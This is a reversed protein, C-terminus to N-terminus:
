LRIWNQSDVFTFTNIGAAEIARRIGDQVLVTTSKEAIRFLSFDMAKNPDVTFGRISSAMKFTGDYSTINSKSRDVVSVLGLINVAFVDYQEGTDYVIRAPYLDLNDIASAMLVEVMRPSMFTVNGDFFDHPPGKYGHRPSARIIIPTPLPALFKAGTQWSLAGPVRVEGEHIELFPGTSDPDSPNTLYDIVSYM